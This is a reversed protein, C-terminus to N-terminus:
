PREEGLKITKATKTSRRIHWGFAMLTALNAPTSIVGTSVLQYISVLQTRAREKSLFCSSRM